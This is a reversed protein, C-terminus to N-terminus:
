IGQDQPLIDMDKTLSGHIFTVYYNYGGLSTVAMSGCLNSHFLDLIGKSKNESKPFSGKTNKGLACGRYVGDHDVHLMPLGTVMNRLAPLAQYNLHALRKHWLENINTSDHVSAQAPLSTM